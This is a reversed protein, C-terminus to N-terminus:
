FSINVPLFIDNTLVLFLYHPRKLSYAIEFPMGESFISTFLSIPFEVPSANFTFSSNLWLFSNYNYSSSIM